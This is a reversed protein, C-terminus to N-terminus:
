WLQEKWQKEQINRYRGSLLGSIFVLWTVGFVLGCLFFVAVAIQKLWNLGLMVAAVAVFGVCLGVLGALIGVVWSKPKDRPIFPKQEAM